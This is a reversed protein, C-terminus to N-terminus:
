LLDKKYESDNYYEFSNVKKNDTKESQMLCNTNDKKIVIEEQGIEDCDSENDCKVSESTNLQMIDIYNTPAKTSKVVNQLSIVNVMKKVLQNTGTASLGSVMGVGAALLVNETGVLVPDCIYGIIGLIMGIGGSILPYYSKIKSGDAFTLKLIEILGYVIFVIAPIYIGEFYTNM